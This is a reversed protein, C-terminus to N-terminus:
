LALVILTRFSRLEKTAGHKGLILWIGLKLLIKTRSRCNWSHDATFREWLLLGDLTALEWSM